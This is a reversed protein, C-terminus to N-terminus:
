WALAPPDPGIPMLYPTFASPVSPSPLSMGPALVDRLVLLVLVTTLLGAMRQLRTSRTRARHAGVDTSALSAVGNASLAGLSAHGASAPDSAAESEPDDIARVQQDDM